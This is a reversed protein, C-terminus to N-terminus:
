AVARTIYDTKKIEPLLRYLVHHLNNRIAQFLKQDAKNALQSIDMDEKTLFGQRKLREVLRELKEQDNARTYGLWATSAYLVQAM